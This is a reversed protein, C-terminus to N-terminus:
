DNTLTYNLVPQIISVNLDPGHNNDAVTFFNQHFLAWLLKDRTASIGAGTGVGMKPHQAQRYSNADLHAINQTSGHTFPITPFFAVLIQRLKTAFLDRPKQHKRGLPKDNAHNNGIHSWVPM